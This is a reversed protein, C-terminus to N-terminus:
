QELWKKFSKVGDVNAEKLSVLQEKKVQATQSGVEMVVLLKHVALFGASAAASKMKHCKEHWDDKNGRTLEQAIENIYLQTQQEYMALMKEVVAQGLSEQYGNLLTVDLYQEFNM